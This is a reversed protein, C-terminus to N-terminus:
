FTEGQPVQTARDTLYGVNPKPEPGLRLTMLDLRHWAGHEAHSASLVGEGAGKAEKKRDWIFLYIGFFFTEGWWKFRAAYM